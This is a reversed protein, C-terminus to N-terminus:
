RFIRYTCITDLWRVTIGFCEVLFGIGFSWEHKGSRRINCLVEKGVWRRWAIDVSHVGSTPSTLALKQPYLTDRPWRSQDRRGYDRSELGSGISKREVLEEITSVLSLPGREQGV